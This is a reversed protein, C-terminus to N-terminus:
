GFALWAGALATLGGLARVAGPPRLRGGATGIGLGLGHLAATSLRLRPRLRPGRRAAAEPGHAHGHAM